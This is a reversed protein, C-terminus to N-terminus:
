SLDNQPSAASGLKIDYINQSKFDDYDLNLKNSLKEYRQKHLLLFIRSLEFGLIDDPYIIDAIELLVEHIELIKITEDIIGDNISLSIYTRRYFPVQGLSNGTQDCLLCKIRGPTLKSILNLLFSKFSDPFITCKDKDKIESTTEDM